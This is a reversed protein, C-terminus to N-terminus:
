LEISKRLKFIFNHLREEGPFADILEDFSIEPFHDGESWATIDYPNYIFVIADKKFFYNDFNEKKAELGNDYVYFSNRKDEPTMELIEDTEGDEISYYAESKEAILMLKEHVLDRIKLLYNNENEFLEIFQFSRIPNNFYNIGKTGFMGHPTGTYYESIFSTLSVFFPQMLKIEIKGFSTSDEPNESDLASEKGDDLLFNYFNNRVSMMNSLVDNNIITNLDNLSENHSLNFQPYHFEYIHKPSIDGLEGQRVKDTIQITGEVLELTKSSDLLTQQQFDIAHLVEKFVNEHNEVYQFRQLKMPVECDDLKIPLVYIDSDLKYECYDLVKRFEKQVYGRKSVSTKSLLLIIFDAKQLAEQIFFEWNQGVHLKKKDLWPSYNKSLLFDFLKVAYDKDEKAYSIFIKNHQM